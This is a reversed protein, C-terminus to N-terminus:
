TCFIRATLVAKLLYPIRLPPWKGAVEVLEKPRGGFRLIADVVVVSVDQAYFVRIAFLVHYLARNITRHLKKYLRADGVVVGCGTDM